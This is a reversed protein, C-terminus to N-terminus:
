LLLCPRYYISASMYSYNLLAERLFYSWNQLLHRRRDHLSSCMRIHIGCIIKHSIRIRGPRDNNILIPGTGTLIKNNAKKSIEKSTPIRNNGRRSVETGTLSIANSTERNDKNRGSTKGGKNSNSTVASRIRLNIWVEYARRASWM